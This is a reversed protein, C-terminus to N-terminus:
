TERRHRRMASKQLNMATRFAVGHLWSAISTRKRISAAQRALVLFTAQFADEADAENQLVNSCDNIVLEGHRRVLATFAVEDRQQAYRLMLEADTSEEANKRDILAQIHRLVTGLQGRAM